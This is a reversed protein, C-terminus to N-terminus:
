NLKDGFSENIIILTDAWKSLLKFIHDPPNNSNNTIININSKEIILHNKIQDIYANKLKHDLILDILLNEVDDNSILLENALYNIHVKQYPRILNLLVQERM